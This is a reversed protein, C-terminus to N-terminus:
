MIYSEGMKKRFSANSGASETFFGTEKDSHTLGTIAFERWTKAKRLKKLRQKLKRQTHRLMLGLM